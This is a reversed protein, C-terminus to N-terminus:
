DHDPLGAFQHVAQGLAELVLGYVHRGCRVGEEVGMRTAHVLGARGLKRALASEGCKGAGWNGPDRGASQHLGEVRSNRRIQEFLVM